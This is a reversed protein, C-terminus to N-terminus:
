MESLIDQRKKDYEEQSIFGKELLEKAKLLRDEISNKEEIVPQAQAQNQSLIYAYEKEPIVKKLANFFRDAQFKSVVENLTGDQEKYKIYTETEDHVKTYTRVPDITTEKRSGIVAGAGGAVIGGAIAGKLSSGGVTGGGGMIETTAYKQGGMSFYEINNLPIYFAHIQCSLGKFAERLENERQYQSKNVGYGTWNKKGETLQRLRDLNTICCLNRDNKWLDFKQSYVIKQDIDGFYLSVEDATTVVPFEKREYEPNSLYEDYKRKQTGYLENYLTDLGHQADKVQADFKQKANAQMSNSASQLLYALGYCVLAIVLLVVIATM